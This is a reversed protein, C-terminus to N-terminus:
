SKKICELWVETLTYSYKLLRFFTSHRIHKKSYSKQYGYALSGTLGVYAASPVPPYVTTFTREKDLGSNDYDSSSVETTKENGVWQYACTMFPLFDTVVKASIIPECLGISLFESESPEDKGGLTFKLKSLLFSVGRIVVKAYSPLNQKLSQSILLKVKLTNFANRLLLDYDRYFREFIGDEGWYYLSYNWMKVDSGHLVISYIDYSSTTGVACNHSIYPFALMPKLANESDTTETDDQGAIVMKSNLTNYDGIYLFRNFGVTVSNEDDDTYVFNLQRFEPVCDPISIEQSEIDEGTNYAQSGPGIKTRVLYDGSYGNKYFCGDYPNFYAGPNKTVMDVIDDYNDDVDSDVSNSSSLVIHKYDKATKFSLTPEETVSHTLDAVPTDAVVDRLFVIGATHSGEDSTFECCFKKRFVAFFDKCTVDPLLDAIRIHGNVMVDIVNNILVMSSFPATKTFFNEQLTYGFHSFIRQLVYNARIFPSMYYGPALTIPVQNVYETRQVANYYDCGTGAESPNFASVSSTISDDKGYANLIKFNFGTDVGSDDTLLVPFIAYHPDTGSRLDRCFQICQAVSTLGPIMEDGFITKLKVDQIKSYFSGDNLYFSTSINGKHTASLVVQRCQAFFEGDSIAVDQATMKERRGFSDPFDLLMRNHDSSPIDLPTTSEGYDTFFPNTREVELKTDPRLEYTKNKSLNVIKM